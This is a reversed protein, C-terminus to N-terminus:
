HLTSNTPADPVGGTEIFNQMLQEVPANPDITRLPMPSININGDADVRYPCMGLSIGTHTHLRVLVVAAKGAVKSPDDQAAKMVEAPDEGQRVPLITLEAENVQVVLNPASGLEAIMEQAGAFDPEFISRIYRDLAAIRQPDTYAQAISQADAPLMPIDSINSGDVVMIAMFPMIKGSALREKAVDSLTQQYIAEIAEPSPVAVAKLDSKVDENSM